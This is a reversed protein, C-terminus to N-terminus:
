ALQCFCPPAGRLPSHAAMSMSMGIQWCYRQAGLNTSSDSTSRCRLLVAFNGYPRVRESKEQLRRKYLRGLPGPSSRSTKLKLSRKQITEMVPEWTSSRLRIM